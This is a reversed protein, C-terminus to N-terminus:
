EFRVTYDAVECLQENEFQPEPIASETIMHFHIVQGPFREKLYGIESLKRVDDIAVCKLGTAMKQVYELKDALQRVWYLQDEDCRLQGREIMVTRMVKKQCEKIITNAKYEQSKNYWDYGPYERNLEDRLAGALSWIEQGLKKALTSKGAGIGDGSIAFIKVM